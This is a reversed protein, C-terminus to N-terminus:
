LQAFFHLHVLDGADGHDLVVIAAVAGQMSEPIAVGDATADMPLM